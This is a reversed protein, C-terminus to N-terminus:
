LVKLLFFETEVFYASGLCVRFSLFFKMRLSLIRIEDSFTNTTVFFIEESIQSCKRVQSNGNNMSSIWRAKRWKWQIHTWVHYEMQRRRKKERDRKKKKMLYAPLTWVQIWKAQKSSRRERILSFYTCTQYMSHSNCRSYYDQNSFIFYTTISISFMCVCKPEIYIYLKIVIIHM